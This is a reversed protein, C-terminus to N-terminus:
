PRYIFGVFGGQESKRTEITILLGYKYYSTYGTGEKKTEVYEAYAIIQNLISSYDSEGYFTIDLGSAINNEGALGSFSYLSYWTMAEAKKSDYGEAFTSVYDTIEVTDNGISFMNKEYTKIDKTMLVLNTFDFQQSFLSTSLVLLFYFPIYKM